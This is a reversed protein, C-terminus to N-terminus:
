GLLSGEAIRRCKTRSSTSVQAHFQGAVEVPPYQDLRKATVPVIAHHVLRAAMDNQLGFCRRMLADRHGIVARDSEAREVVDKAKYGFVFAHIPFVKQARKSRKTKAGDSEGLASSM